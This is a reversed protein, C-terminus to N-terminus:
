GEQPGMNQPRVDQVELHSCQCCLLLESAHLPKSLPSKEGRGEEERHSGHSMSALGLWQLIFAM